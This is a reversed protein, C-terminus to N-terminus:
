IYRWESMDANNAGRTKNTIGFGAFNFAVFISRGLFVAPALFAKMAVNALMGCESFSPIVPALASGFELGLAGPPSLDARRAM